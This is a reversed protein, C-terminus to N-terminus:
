VEGPQEKRVVGSAAHLPVAAGAAHAPAVDLVLVGPEAGLAPYRATPLGLDDMKEHSKGQFGDLGNPIGGHFGHVLTM